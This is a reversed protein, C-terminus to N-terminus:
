RPRRADLHGLHRAPPRRDCECSGAQRRHADGYAATPRAMSAKPMVAAGAAASLRRAPRRVAGDNEVAEHAVRNGGADPMSSNRPAAEDAGDGEGARDDGEALGKEPCTCLEAQELPAGTCDVGALVQEVEISPRAVCRGRRGQDEQEASLRSPGRRSSRREGQTGRANSADDMGIPPASMGTPPTQHRLEAVGAPGRAGPM